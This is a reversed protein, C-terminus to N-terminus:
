SASYRAPIVALANAADWRLSRPRYRQCLKIAGGRSSGEVGGHRRLLLARWLPPRGKLSTSVLPRPAAVLAHAYLARAVAVNLYFREPANEGEALEAAGRRRLASFIPVCRSYWGSSASPRGM